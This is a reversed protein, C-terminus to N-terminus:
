QAGGTRCALKRFDASATEVGGQRDQVCPFWLVHGFETDALGYRAELIRAQQAALSAVDVIDLQKALDM